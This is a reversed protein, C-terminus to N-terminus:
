PNKSRKRSVKIPENKENNIKKYIFAKMRGLSIPQDSKQYPTRYFFRTFNYPPQNLIYNAKWRHGKIRLQIDLKTLLEGNRIVQRIGGVKVSCFDAQQLNLKTLTTQLLKAKLDPFPPTPQIKRVTNFHSIMKHLSQANETGSPIFALLEEYSMRVLSIGKPIWLLKEIAKAADFASELYLTNQTEAYRLLNTFHRSFIPMLLRLEMYTRKHKGYQFKVLLM